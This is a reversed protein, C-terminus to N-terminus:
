YSINAHSSNLRTSKRDLGGEGHEGQKREAVAPVLEEPREHDHRPVLEARIRQPQHAEAVVVAVRRGLLHRDGNEGGQRDEEEEEHELARQALAEVQRRELPSVMSFIRIAHPLRPTPVEGRKAATSPPEM